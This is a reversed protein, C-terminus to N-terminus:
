LVTFLCGFSIYKHAHLSKQLLSQYSMFGFKKMASFFFIKVRIKYRLLSTKTQLLFDQFEFMVHSCKMKLGCTTHKLPVHLLGTFEPPKRVEGL